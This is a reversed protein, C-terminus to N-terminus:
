DSFIIRSDVVKGSKENLIFPNIDLEAIKKNNTPIKSIEVLVKKLLNTNLKKGRFGEFIKKAKLESIMEKADQLTIPCKRISIDDLVETFIGGLGFLIVHNFVPDKKIGIILQEGKYFEQVMIGKLKIKKKNATKILDKFNSELEQNSKIIRVGNIETKHL